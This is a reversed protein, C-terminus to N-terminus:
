KGNTAKLAAFRELQEARTTWAKSSATYLERLRPLANEAARTEWIQAQERCVRSNPESM